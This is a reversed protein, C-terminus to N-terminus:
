PRRGAKEINNNYCEKCAKRADGKNILGEDNNYGENKNLIEDDSVYDEKTHYMEEDHSLTQEDAFKDPFGQRTM